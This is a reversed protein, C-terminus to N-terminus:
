VVRILKIPFNETILHGDTLLVVLNVEFEIKFTRTAITPCTFLRPFIMHLPVSFNRSVDGDAVQINQIETADKSYGEACGCTEVRVLQLEISKIIADCEEIQIEGLFPKSIDCIATQLFGNIKFKPIKSISTKKVNELVEPTVTFPTKVDKTGITKPDTKVEVIFEVVKQLNKALLPRIMDCKLCYSINIFVGHYTEYLPLGALPELRFEFPLETQGDPLKGPKAIEVSYNVMQIPKLSNYFADFVGVNKGSMQLVVSGEMVLTIGNHSLTGKSAVAVVGSVMEGQRYIRDAKKLRIDLNAM